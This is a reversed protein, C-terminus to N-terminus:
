VEGDDTLLTKKGEADQEDFEMLRKMLSIVSFFFLAGPIQGITVQSYQAVIIPFLTAIIAVMLIKYQRNRMRFYFHIGQYLIILNFLMTVALGIWGVELAAKLLGSDPPFGALPHTPSFHKGEIGTTAIGGGMPHEYIYPQIFHRNRDRLNLSAEKSDFTSRIRILTPTYIPAFLIFMVALFAVFLTILTTKNRITILGYIALGAPLLINTTRTGSYVMGVLMVLSMFILLYQRRKRKENIGLVLTFVAMSGSLMGFSVVDSLFSFKRLQGGQFMLDYEKPNRSIYAIETPLYGFWQQFCGYVAVVFSFFVWFKIFFKLKEPTNILRYASVYFLIYVILRKFSASWGASSVANPNFAEIIYFLVYCGLAISVGTKLLNTRKDGTNKVSIFTGLFLFIILLELGSSLPLDMVLLHDPYFIFIGIVSIVYYSTYPKFLCYYVITVAILVIGLAFPILYLNNAALYGAAIAFLALLAIGGPSMFRKLFIERRLWDGFSM